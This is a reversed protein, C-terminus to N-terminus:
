RSERASNRMQRLAILADGGVWFLCFVLICIATALTVGQIGIAKGLWISLGVNAVTALPGALSQVKLRGLGNVLMGICNTTAILGYTLLLYFPLEPAIAVDKGLWHKLITPTYIVLLGGAVASWIFAGRFSNWFTKTIWRYDGRAKADSYAPWLPAVFSAAVAEIISFLRLMVGYTAVEVVGFLQTVILLDSQFIGIACIQAIWFQLGVRILVQFLQFDCNSLHPRLWKQRHYFLDIGAILDGAMGLGFFIGILWPLNVHYYQAIFLSLLALINALGVWLQYIYGQQYATYICRPISLPIRIAFLCMAVTIASRTDQQLSASLRLNFLRDWHLFWSSIIATSLLLLGLGVMPFFASAVAQKAKPIDEDALATSLVNVLSNTLGMDALAIWSMLTSLLIWVGFQEKGLYHATIPISLLNTGVFLGKVVLTVMGTLAAKRHRADQFFRNKVSQSIRTLKQHINV